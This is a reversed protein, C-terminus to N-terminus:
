PCTGWVPRPLVWSDANSDFNSPAAPIHAVCWGSLDQNFARASSFMSNMDTVNSTDWGGIDQNFSEALSFMTRMNTVNSTDWGGIDQNFALTYSFMRSMDTVKSTDWGGIDQNFPAHEFMGSMNTVKSTDWGSIDQNFAWVQYFMQSMNTVNSTDWGGIDQNFSDARGFMRSMDTVNSTDWGGIDQDFEWVEYFMGAMNTVKATDWGGIDQNFSNALSFMARMNTVNSTDWSGIDQNFRWANNFMQRMDNVNSTDWGGIDGNFGASSFMGTMDTVNEIGESDGPVSILNWAGSFASRLSTFGVDGWNDVSVLKRSEYGEGGNAQSNYATVRGTVSVTYIGNVGYDHIHPGPTMVHTNTGDGWDITADVEGALAVTVTTGSGLRTDWTTVFANSTVTFLARASSVMTAKRVVVDLWYSGAGLEIEGPGVTITEGNTYESGNIFWRISDPATSPELSLGVTMTNEVTISDQVGVLTVQYPAGGPIWLDDGTLQYEGLSLQGELIRVAVVRSWVFKGADSLSMSLTYYGAQWSGSYIAGHPASDVTFSLQQELRDVPTLEASVSPNEITGGPWSISLELTGEGPLPVVVLNAASTKGAQVLVTTSDGAIIVAGANRANATVTWEGPELNSITTAVTDSGTTLTQTQGPGSLTIQYDEINMDLDPQVISLSELGSGVTIVLNGTQRDEYGLGPCGSLVGLVLTVVLGSVLTRGPHFKLSFSM